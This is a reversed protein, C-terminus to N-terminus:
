DFDLYPIMREWSKIDLLTVAKLQEFDRFAGHQARYNLVLKAQAYPIYPHRFSKWDLLNIRFKRYVGRGLKLQAHHSNVWASDLGYVEKLQSVTYFGGLKERFLLIRHAFGPGIGPMAVWELSDATNIDIVPIASKRRVEEKKSKWEKSVRGMRGVKSVRGVRSVRSVKSVRSVEELFAVIYEERTVGREDRTETVGMWVVLLGMLGMIGYMEWRTLGLLFRFWYHLRSLM